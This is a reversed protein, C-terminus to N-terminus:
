ITEIEHISHGTDKCHEALKMIASREAVWHTIAGDLEVGSRSASVNLDDQEQLQALEEHNLSTIYRNPANTQMIVIM